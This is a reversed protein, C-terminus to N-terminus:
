YDTLQQTSDVNIKDNM